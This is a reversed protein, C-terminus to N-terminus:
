SPCRGVIIVEGEELKVIGCKGDEAVYMFRGRDLLQTSVEAADTPKKMPSAVFRYTNTPRFGNCSNRLIGRKKVIRGYCFQSIEAPGRDGLIVAQNMMSGDSTMIESGTAFGYPILYAPVQRRARSSTGRVAPQVHCGKSTQTDELKAEYTALNSTNLPTLTCKVVSPMGPIVAGHRVIKKIIFPNVSEIEDSDMVVAV